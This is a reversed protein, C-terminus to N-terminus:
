SGLLLIFVKRFKLWLMPLFIAFSSFNLTRLDPCFVKLFNKSSNFSSDERNNLGTDSGTFFTYSSIKPLFILGLNGM